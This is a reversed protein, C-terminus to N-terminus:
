SVGGKSRQSEIWSQFLDLRVYVRKGIKRIAGELGNRHRMTLFHRVQGATFPYRDTIQKISLYQYDSM